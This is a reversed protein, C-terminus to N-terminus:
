AEARPAPRPPERDLPQLPLVTRIEELRRPETLAAGRQRPGCGVLFELLTRIVGVISRREIWGVSTADIATGGMSVPRAGSHIARVRGDAAIDNLDIPGGSDILVSVKPSLSARYPALSIAQRLDTVIARLNHPERPEFGLLPSTVLQPGSD